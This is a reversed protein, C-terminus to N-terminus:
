GLLAPRAHAAPVIRGAYRVSPRRHLRRTACRRACLILLIVGVVVGVFIEPAWGPYLALWRLCARHPPLPLACAEPEPCLPPDSGRLSFHYAPAHVHVGPSPSAGVEGFLVVRPDESGQLLPWTVSLLSIVFAAAISASAPM